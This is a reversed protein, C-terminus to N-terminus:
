LGIPLHSFRVSVPLTESAKIGASIQDPVVVTTFQAQMLSEPTTVVM